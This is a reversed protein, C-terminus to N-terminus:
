KLREEAEEEKIFVIYQVVTSHNLLLSKHSFNNKKNMCAEPENYSKPGYLNKIFHQVHISSFQKM